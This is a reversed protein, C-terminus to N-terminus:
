FFAILQSTEAVTHGIEMLNSAIIYFMEWTCRGNFFKGKFIWCIMASRNQIMPLYRSTETQLIRWPNKFNSRKVAHLECVREADNHWIKHLDTMWVTASIAITPKKRTFHLAKLAKVSNTQRWSSRGAQLFNLSSTNTHNDTQLSTSQKCTTWSIGSGDWFGM